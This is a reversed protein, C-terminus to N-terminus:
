FLTVKIRKSFSGDGIRYLIRMISDGSLPERINEAMAAYFLLDPEILVLIQQTQWM